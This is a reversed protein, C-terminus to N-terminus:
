NSQLIWKSFYSSDSNVRLLTDSIFDLYQTYTSEVFTTDEYGNLYKSTNTTIMSDNVISFFGNREIIYDESCSYLESSYIYDNLFTCRGYSENCIGLENGLDDTIIDDGFRIWSDGDRSNSFIEWTGILCRGKFAIPCSEPETSCSLIFLISFILLKKM